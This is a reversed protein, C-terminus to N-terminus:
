LKGIEKAVAVFLDGQSLADDVGVHTKLNARPSFWRKPMRSKSIRRFPLDLQTWVVSKIDLYAFGFPDGGAFREMYWHVWMYDFTPYVVCVPSGGLGRVWADAARMAEEPPRPDRTCAAWAEPQGAWWAMTDPDRGAGELEAINISFTGIEEGDRFAAFGLDIMSFPGPIPGTAEIDASVYVTPKSM